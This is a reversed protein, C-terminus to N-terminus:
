GSVTMRAASSKSIELETSEGRLLKLAGDIVASAILPRRDITPGAVHPLTYVNDLTRFPSHKDPPETQYVDLVAFFRNEMLADILESENVIGGRATNIFLAGDALMDLQEKGIMGRTRENLASHLSVIKCESFVENLGAPTVNYKKCYEESPPHSSYLMIKVKFAQLMEILFKTITGFGVLGVTGGLLGKTSYKKKPMWGGDKIEMLHHPLHRLGMLMYSIVGEAVSEAFLINGSIVRIGADFLDPTVLSGVTGGTHAILKINTGSVTDSSIVPHGWGTIAVDCDKAYLKFNKETPEEGEPLYVVEFSEALKKIVRETFFSDTVASGRQMALYAKM